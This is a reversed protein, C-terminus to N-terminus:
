SFYSKIKEAISDANVKFVESLDTMPASKGFTQISFSETVNGIYDSWGNSKALEITFSFKNNNLKKSNDPTLKNLIPVSVVRVSYNEFKEKLQLAINVESGSAFITFDDGDSIIYGGNLFDKYDVEYDLYELNQRTLSLAKPNNTNSFLYKYSHAIEISNSPRIVDLGPILRLSMLHEVPQHTPGDEGLYLSDHTFIYSSNINMLSALRISPRMYDSFVLFTSGFAFLKSHLSIGNVVAAMAHERIGFEINQGNRNNSSYVEDSIIQKTSAALDASGGLIFRNKTGILNLYKGGSVRTAANTNEFTEPLFLEQSEFQKWLSKLEDDENLKKDLNKRWNEYILNDETRKKDFYDYIDDDHLFPDGSWGIEEFFLNMEEEGLPAGHISSTNQKNPSFKGITSKAIILSPKSTEKKSEEIANVIELESHGDVELVQWGFSEFKNKQNTISVKDVNGDISINNDDFIYILKGLKWVGALEAAEFSVGEMLDGDSVIGYIYHDIVDKGFIESLYSEALALGVGTAFGQGLPGTTIDIGLATDVEPHGATKSDLQRFKKIDDMSIEYGNFHLLSYLLMSGHGASLVFRDRNIWDPNKNSINLINGFLVTGVEAMGMPMGPHGSNAKEVAAASLVRISKTVKDFM